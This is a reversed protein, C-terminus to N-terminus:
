KPKIVLKRERGEGKSETEIEKSEGFHTHIIRREYSSLGSMEVERGEEIAEGACREAMEVIKEEREKRYGEVDVLIQKWEGTKRYAMLSLVLQLARLTEGRFGILIGPEETKIDLFIVGEEEKIRGEGKVGMKELIERIIEELIKGTKGEGM